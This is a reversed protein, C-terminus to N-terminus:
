SCKNGRIIGIMEFTFSRRRRRREEKAGGERRKRETQRDTPIQMTYDPRRLASRNRGEKRRTWKERSKRKGKKEEKPM